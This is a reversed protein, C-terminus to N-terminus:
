HAVIHRLGGPATWRPPHNMNIRHFDMLHQSSTPTRECLRRVCMRCCLCVEKREALLRSGSGSSLPNLNVAGRPGVPWKTQAAIFSTTLHQFGSKHPLVCFYFLLSFSFQKRLRSMTGVSVLPVLLPPKHSFGTFSPPRRVCREYQTYDDLSIQHRVIHLHFAFRIHIKPENSQKACGFQICRDPNPSSQSICFFTAM